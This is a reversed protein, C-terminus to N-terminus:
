HIALPSVTYGLLSMITPWIVGWRDASLIYDIELQIEVKGPTPPHTPTTIFLILALETRSASSQWSSSLKAINNLYVTFFIDGWYTKFNRALSEIQEEPM